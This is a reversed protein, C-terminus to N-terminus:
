NEKRYQSNIMEQLKSQTNGAMMYFGYRNDDIKTDPMQSQVGYGPADTMQAMGTYQGFGATYGMYAVTVTQDGYQGDEGSQVADLQEALNTAVAESGLREALSEVASGVKQEQASPPALDFKGYDPTQQSLFDSIGTGSAIADNLGSGFNQDSGSLGQGDDFSSIFDTSGSQTQQDATEFASVSPGQFGSDTVEISSQGTSQEVQQQFTTDGSSNAQLSQGSNSSTSGDSQFSQQAGSNSSSQSSSGSDQLINQVIGATTSDGGFDAKAVAASISISAASALHSGGAKERRSRTDRSPEAREQIEEQQERIQEQREEAPAEQRTEEEFFEEEMSPMMLDELEDESIIEEFAEDDILDEIREEGVEEIFEEFIEDEFEELAEREYDELDQLEEPIDMEEFFEEMGCTPCDRSDNPMAILYELDENDLHSNYLLDDAVQPDLAYDYTEWVMEGEESFQVEEGYWDDVQEQGFERVDVDYWEEMTFDEYGEGFHEINQDHEVEAWTEDLEGAIMMDAIDDYEEEIHTGMQDTGNWQMSPDLGLRILDDQGMTILVADQISMGSDVLMQQEGNLSDYELSDDDRPDYGGHDNGDTYGQQNQRDEDSTGDSGGQMSMMDDWMAQEENEIRQVEAYYGPCTSSFLPDRDCESDTYAEAYDLCESSYLTNNACELFLQQAAYADDYGACDTSSLPDVECSNDQTGSYIIKGTTWGPGSSNSTAGEINGNANDYSDFTTHGGTNDDYYAFTKHEGDSGKGQEGILVDHNQVDLEGYLMGFTNDNRIILEFSNSSDRNYERMFYWGYVVYDGFNQYAMKSTERVGSPLVGTGRILDTWFPYLTYNRYPLPQPTYDNCQASPAGGGASILNVCGNTNQRGGDFTEGWRTFDFGWQTEACRGDDSGACNTGSNYINFLPINGVGPGGSESGDAISWHNGTGDYTSTADANGVFAICLLLILSRTVQEM